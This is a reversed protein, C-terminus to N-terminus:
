NYGKIQGSSAVADFYAIDSWWGILYSMQDFCSLIVHRILTSEIGLVGQNYHELIILSYSVGLAGFNVKSSETVDWLCCIRM